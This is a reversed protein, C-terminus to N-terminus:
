PMSSKKRERGHRITRSSNSRRVENRIFLDTVIGEIFTWTERHTGKKLKRYNRKRIHRREKGIYMGAMFAYVLEIVESFEDRERHRRLTIIRNLEGHM